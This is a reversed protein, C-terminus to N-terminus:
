ADRGKVQGQNTVYIEADFAVSQGFAAV